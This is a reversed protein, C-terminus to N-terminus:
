VTPFTRGSDARADARTGKQLSPRCCPACLPASTPPPPTTQGLLALHVHREGPPTFTTTRVASHSIWACTGDSSPQWSGLSGLVGLPSYRAAFGHYLHRRERKCARCLRGARKFTIALPPPAFFVPGLTRDSAATRSSTPRRDMKRALPNPSTRGPRTAVAPTPRFCDDRTREPDDRPSRYQPSWVLDDAPAPVYTPAKPRGSTGHLTRLVVRHGIRATRFISVLSFTESAASRL